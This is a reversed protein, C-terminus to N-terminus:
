KNNENNFDEKIDKLLENLDEYVKYPYKYAKNKTSLNSYYYVKIGHEICLKLKNEDRKKREELNYTKDYYEISEFHQKGQCEIVVNYEPLYMDAYQKNIYVLWDWSKEDIFQINNETLCSVVDKKLRSDHCKPCGNADSLHNHPIQWFEGHEPCIICVPTRNNVYEVKSYDYKDGHVERARKIFEENTLRVKNSCIPCGNGVLHSNPEQWFDGHEPCTICVKTHSNKYIVKDYRYKDGHVKKSEKIFEETTKHKNESCKPCGCGISGDKHKHYLHSLPTQWFEGHENEDEDKEHCIICVKEESGKYEVKSYDYKDGHIERAKKIFDEITLKRM